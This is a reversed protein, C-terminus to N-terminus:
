FKGDTTFISMMTVKASMKGHPLNLLKIFARCKIHKGGEVNFSQVLGSYIKLRYRLCNAIIYSDFIYNKIKNFMCWSKGYNIQHKNVKNVNTCMYKILRCIDITRYMIQYFFYTLNLMVVQLYIIQFAFLYVSNIAIKM